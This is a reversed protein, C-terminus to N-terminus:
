AKGAWGSWLQPKLGTGATGGAAAAHIRRQALEDKSGARIIYSLAWLPM